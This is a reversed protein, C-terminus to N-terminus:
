EGKEPLFTSPVLPRHTMMPFVGAASAIIGQSVIIECLSEASIIYLIYPCIDAGAIDASGGDMTTTHWLSGHIATHRICSVPPCIDAGAIDANGGDM